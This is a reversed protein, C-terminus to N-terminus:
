AGPRSQMTCSKRIGLFGAWAVRSCYLCKRLPPHRTIPAGFRNPSAVEREGRRTRKKSHPQNHNHRNPFNCSSRRVHSRSAFSLITSLADRLQAFRVKSHGVTDSASRSNTASGPLEAVARWDGVWGRRSNGQRGVVAPRATQLEGATLQTTRDDM